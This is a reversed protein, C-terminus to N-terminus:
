GPTSLEQRKEWRTEAARQDEQDYLWAEYGIAALLDNM